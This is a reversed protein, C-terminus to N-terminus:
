PAVGLVARLERVHQWCARDRAALRLYADDSLCALEAAPVTPVVPKLPILWAPVPQYGAPSACGLMILCALLWFLLCALFVWRM